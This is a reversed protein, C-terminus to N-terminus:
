ELVSVFFCLVIFDDDSLEFLLKEFHEVDNTLHAGM